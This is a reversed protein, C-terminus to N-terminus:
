KKLLPKSDYNAMVNSLGLPSVGHKNEINKDAGKELLYSIYFPDDNRYWMVAIWLPTNGEEDVADIDVNYEVLQVVLDRKKLKVALHLASSKPSKSQLSNLDFGESFLMDLFQKSDIALSESNKLYYHLINNGHKDYSNVDFDLFLNEIENNLLRVKVEEISAM